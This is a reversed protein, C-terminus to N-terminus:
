PVFDALVHNALDLGRATFALRPGRRVLLGAGVYREIERAYRREVDIGHRATLAGVDVGELLRLGMMLSEFLQSAPDVREEWARPAAGSEVRAAYTAPDDVNKWRRGAHHSHAGAGIGLWDANRWYALNHRCRARARAFNSIEYRAYGAAAFHKCALHLHALDREAEPAPLRGKELMRTFGTGPEFTLVYASVHEPELAIAQALDGAQEALSQGPIALILDLSYHGIGGDRLLAVSRRTAEADHIRGLTRLHGDDFSQAGLSVRTVAAARLVAVKEADLSGPNAEITFEVLSPGGFAARIADLYRALAAASGHTPTGGGVFVTRAEVRARWADAEASLAAVYRDAEGDRGAHSNFDCYPCKRACFPYHVYVHRLPGPVEAVLDTLSGPAAVSEV